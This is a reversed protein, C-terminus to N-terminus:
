KVLEVVRVAQGDRLLAQGRVVVLDGELVDPEASPATRPLLEFVNESSLGRRGAINVRRAIGGGAENKVVWVVESDGSIAAGNITLRESKVDVVIRADAWMGPRLDLGGDRARAATALLTARSAADLQDILPAYAEETVERAAVLRVTAVVMGRAPDVVPSVRELYGLFRELPFATVSIYVAQATALDVKESLELLGVAPLRRPERLGRLGAEPVDLKIELRSFDAIKFLAVGESALENERVNREVIVGGIPAVILTYSLHTRKRDVEARAKNVAFEATKVANDAKDRALLASDYDEKRFTKSEDPRAPDFYRLIRELDSKAKAADLRDRALALEAERQATEASDLDLRAQEDNLRALLEGKNVRDGAEKYVATVTERMRAHVDATHHAEIRGTSRELQAIVGKRAPLVEVVPDKREAADREGGPGRRSNDNGQQGCAALLLAAIIGFIFHNNRM